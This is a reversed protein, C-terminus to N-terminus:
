TWFLSIVGIIHVQSFTNNHQRTNTATWNWWCGVFLVSLSWFRYKSSYKGEKRHCTCSRLLLLLIFVFLVIFSIKKNPQVNIKILINTSFSKWLLYYFLYILVCLINERMGTCILDFATRKQWILLYRNWVYMVVLCYHECHFILNLLYPFLSNIRHNAWTRFCSQRSNITSRRFQRTPSSLIYLSYSSYRFYVRWIGNLNRLLRIWHGLTCFIGHWAKRWCKWGVQDSVFHVEAVFVVILDGIATTLLWASMIVSKYRRPAQSYAFVLGTISVLIEASTM